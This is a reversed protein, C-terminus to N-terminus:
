SMFRRRATVYPDSGALLGEGARLLLVDSRPDTGGALRAAIGHREWVLVCEVSLQLFANNLAKREARIGVKFEVGALAFMEALVGPGTSDLALRQVTGTPPTFTRLLLRAALDATDASRLGPLGDFDPM